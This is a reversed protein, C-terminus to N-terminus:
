RTNRSHIYSLFLSFESDTDPGLGPNLFNVALLRLGPFVTSCSLGCCHCLKCYDSIGIFYLNVLGSSGLIFFIFKLFIELIFIFPLILFGIAM